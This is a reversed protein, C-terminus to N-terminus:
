RVRLCAFAYATVSSTIRMVLSRTAIRKDCTASCGVKLWEELTAQLREKSYRFKDAITELSKLNIGLQEGLKRWKGPIAKVATLVSDIDGTSLIRADMEASCISALM